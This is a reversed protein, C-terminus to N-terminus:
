RDENAFNDQCYRLRRCAQAAHLRQNLLPNVGIWACIRPENTDTDTHFIKLYLAEGDIGVPLQPGCGQNCSRLSSRRRANWVIACAGFALSHIYLNNALPQQISGSLGTGDNLQGLRNM